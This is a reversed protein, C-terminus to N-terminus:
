RTRAGDEHAEALYGKQELAAVINAALMEYGERTPHVLDLRPGDYVVLPVDLEAGVAALTEPFTREPTDAVPHTFFDLLAAQGGHARTLRIMERLHERYREPAVRYGLKPPAVKSAKWRLWRYLTSRELLVDHVRLVPLWLRERALRTEDDGIRFLENFGFGILVIAPQLALGRDRLYVLGQYSSYGAVGANIVQYRTAGARHNLLRELAAPYAEEPAVNWGFTSSDGLALVRVSGDDRIEPGRLGAANIHLAADM